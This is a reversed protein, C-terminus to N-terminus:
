EMESGQLCRGESVFLYQCGTAPRECLFGPRGIDFTASRFSKNQLVLQRDSKGSFLGMTPCDGLLGRCRDPPAGAKGFATGSKEEWFPMDSVFFRFLDRNVFPQKQSGPDSAQVVPNPRFRFPRLQHNAGTRIVRRRARDLKIGNM